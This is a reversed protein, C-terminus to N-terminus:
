QAMHPSSRRLRRPPAQGAPKGTAPREHTLAVARATFIDDVLFWSSHVSLQRRAHRRVLVPRERRDRQRVPGPRVLRDGLRRQPAADVQAVAVLGQDVRHRRFALQLHEVQQDPHAVLLDFYTERRGALGIEVEDPLQDLLVADGVVDRDLDEGLRPVLQDLPRGGRDDAGVPRQDVQVVRRRGQLAPDHEAQVAVADGVDRHLAGLPAGPIRLLQQGVRVHM